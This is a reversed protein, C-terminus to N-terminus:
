IDKLDFFVSAENAEPQLLSLNMQDTESLESIAELRDSPEMIILKENMSTYKKQSVANMQKWRRQREKYKISKMRRMVRKLRLRKKPSLRSLFRKRQKYSMKRLRKAQRIRKRKKIEKRIEFPLTKFYARREDKNLTKLHRLHIKAEKSIAQLQSLPIFLFCSVILTKLLIKM